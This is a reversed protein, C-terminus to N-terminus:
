AVAGKTNWRVVCAPCPSVNVTHGCGPCRFAPVTQFDISPGAAHELIRSVNAPLVHVAESIQGADFGEDDLRIVERKVEESIRGGSHIVRAVPAPDLPPLHPLTCPIPRDSAPRPGTVLGGFRIAGPFGRRTHEFYFVSPM